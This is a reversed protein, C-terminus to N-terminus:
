FSLFPSFRCKRLDSWTWSGCYQPMSLYQRRYLCWCGRRTNSSADITGDGIQRSLIGIEFAALAMHNAINSYRTFASTCHIQVNHANWITRSDIASLCIFSPRCRAIPSPRPHNTMKNNNNNNNILLLLNTKNTTTTTKTTTRRACRAKMLRVSWVCGECLVFIGYKKSKREKSHGIPLRNCKEERKDCSTFTWENLHWAFIHNIQQQSYVAKFIARQRSVPQATTKPILTASDISNSTHTHRRYFQLAISIHACLKTTTVNNYDNSLRWRRRRRRYCLGFDCQLSKEYAITGGTVPSRWLRPACAVCLM